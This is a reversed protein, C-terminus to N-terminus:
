GIVRRIEYKCFLESGGQKSAVGLQRGSRTVNGSDFHKLGPAGPLGGLKSATMGLSALSDLCVVQRRRREFKGSGLNAGWLSLTTLDIM